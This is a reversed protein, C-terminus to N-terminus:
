KSKRKILVAIVGGLVILTIAGGGIWYFGTVRQYNVTVVAELRTTPAKKFNEGEKVGLNFFSVKDKFWGKKIEVELNFKYKKGDKEIEVVQKEIKGTSNDVWNVELEIEKDLDIFNNNSDQIKERLLFSLKEKKNM